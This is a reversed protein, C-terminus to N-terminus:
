QYGRQIIGAIVRRVQKQLKARAAKAAKELYRVQDMTLGFEEAVLSVAAKERGVAKRHACVARAVADAEDSHWSGTEVRHAPRKVKDEDECLDALFLREGRTLPRGQPSRLLAILEGRRGQRAEDEALLCVPDIDQEEIAATGGGPWSVLRVWSPDNDEKKM